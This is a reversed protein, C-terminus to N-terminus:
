KNLVWVILMLLVFALLAGVAGGTLGADLVEKTM